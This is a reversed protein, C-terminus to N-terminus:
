WVSGGCGCFTVAAVTHPADCTGCLCAAMARAYVIPGYGQVSSVVHQVVATWGSCVIACEM